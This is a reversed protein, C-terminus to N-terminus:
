EVQLNQNNWHSWSCESKKLTIQSQSVGKGYKLRNQATVAFTNFSRFQHERGARMRDREVESAAFEYTTTKEGCQPCKYRRRTGNLISRSDLCKARRTWDLEGSEDKVIRRFECGCHSCKIGNHNRAAMSEKYPM